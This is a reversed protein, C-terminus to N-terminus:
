PKTVGIQGSKKKACEWNILGVDVGTEALQMQTATTVLTDVASWSALFSPATRGLKTEDICFVSRQSRGCVHRQFDSIGDQSNWLGDKTMGEASLFAIDFRWSALTLSAGQGVLVLQHPLLNGGLLHIESTGRSALNEAVPLSNTVIKLSGDDIEVIREALAFITSGADLFLTSGPEIFQAAVRAIQRKLDKQQANRQYFPVFLADYESLAGGYTRTIRKEQELASLDRRITAESVSFRGALDTVSLYGERQLLSALGERRAAIEV